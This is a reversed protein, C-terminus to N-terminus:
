TASPVAVHVTLLSLTANGAKLTGTVDTFPIPTGSSSAVVHAECTSRFAAHHHAWLMVRYGHYVLVREGTAKAIGYSAVSDFASSINLWSSTDFFTASPSSYVALCVQLQLSHQATQIYALEVLAGAASM